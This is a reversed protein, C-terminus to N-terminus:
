PRCGRALSSECAQRLCRRGVRVYSQFRGHPGEHRFSVVERGTRLFCQQSAKRALRPGSVYRPPSGCDSVSSRSGCGRPLRKVGVVRDDRVCRRLVAPFSTPASPTATSAPPTSCSSLVVSAGALCRGRLDIHVAVASGIDCCRLWYPRRLRM